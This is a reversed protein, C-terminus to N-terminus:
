NGIWRAVEIAVQNAAENLAPGVTEATGDAPASAEFRRTEVRTGGASSVAADYRVIVAAYQADYGMSLLKGTVTLGPDLMSQSPDLVVRGTTRTITESLLEQFLEGPTDVWQLDEIYAIATPGVQAPVRVTRLEDPTIPVEITVVEGPSAARTTAGSAPSSSTLTLLTPPVKGGGGLLSGLSCGGVAIILAAPATLRFLYKM